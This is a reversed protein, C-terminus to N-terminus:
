DVFRQVEANVYSSRASAPSCLVILFESDRLAEILRAELEGGSSLDTRDRFVPGVRKEVRGRSGIVGILDKPTRFRELEGHLWKATGDDGRSYSLFARFRRSDRGTPMKAAPEVEFTTAPM